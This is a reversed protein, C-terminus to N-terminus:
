DWMRAARETASVSRVESPGRPRSLSRTLGSPSTVMVLSPAVMRSLITRDLGSKCRTGARGREGSM